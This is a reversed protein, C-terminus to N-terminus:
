QDRWIMLTNSGKDKKVRVQGSVGSKDFRKSQRLVAVSVNNDKAFTDVSTPASPIAKFATIIKDGKRGRKKPVKISKTATAPKVSTSTTSPKSITTSGTNFLKSYSKADINQTPTLAGAALMGRAASLEKDTVGFATCAQDDSPKFHDILAFRDNWTLTKSKSM